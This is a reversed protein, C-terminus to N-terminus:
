QVVECDWEGEAEDCVWQGPSAFRGPRTIEALSFGVVFACVTCIVARSTM